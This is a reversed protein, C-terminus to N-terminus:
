HPARRRARLLGVARRAPSTARWWRSACVQHYLRSMEDAQLRAAALEGTLYAIHNRDGQLRAVWGPPVFVPTADLAAGLDDATPGDDGALRQHVCAITAIDAVGALMAALFSLKWAASRTEEDFRLGARFLDTPLVFSGLPLQDVTLHRWLDFHEGAVPVANSQSV